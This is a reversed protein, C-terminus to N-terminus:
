GRCERFQVVNGEPDVGDCVRVGRFEWERELPLLEGGHLPAIARVNALNAAQFIPKIPTDTRPRPPHAIEVSAAIREPLKHVVLEFSASALVVCDDDAHEVALDLIAQYFTAIRAPDKAFVVAGSRAAHARILEDVLIGNIRMGALNADSISANSFDVDTFDADALNAKTFTAHRLSVDDFHSGALNANTFRSGAIDSDIVSLADRVNHIEM